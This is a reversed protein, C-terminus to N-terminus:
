SAVRSPERGSADELARAHRRVRYRWATVAGVTMGLERAVDEVAHGGAFLLEFLQADRSDPRLRLQALLQELERRVALHTTFDIPADVDGAATVVCARPRGLRRHVRRRAVLRVFSDLSRGRTPDWRLLEQGGREYLYLMVDQVLDAPQEDGDGLGHRQRIALQCAVERRIALYLRHALARRAAPEDDLARLLQERDTASSSMATSAARSRDALAM